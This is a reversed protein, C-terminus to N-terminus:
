VILRGKLNRMYKMGLVLLAFHDLLEEIFVETEFELSWTWLEEKPVSIQSNLVSLYYNSLLLTLENLTNEKDEEDGFCITSAAKDTIEDMVPDFLEKYQSPLDGNFTEAVLVFGDKEDLKAKWKEESKGIFREPNIVEVEAGYYKHGLNKILSAVEKAFRLTKRNHNVSLAIIGLKMM